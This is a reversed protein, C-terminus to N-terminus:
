RSFSPMEDIDSFVAAIAEARLLYNEFMRRKTFKMRGRSRRILDQKKLDQRCDDDLIFRVIPRLLADAGSLKEYIQLVRDADRSELDGTHVLGKFVVAGFQQPDALEEFILPFCTQETAGEVWLVADAGFLDSVSAGIEALLDRMHQLEARNMSQITSQGAAKKIVSVSASRSSAIATPSHTGIIFQHNPFSAAFIEMLGRVAGPHLSHELEDILILSLNPEFFAPLLLMLIQRVGAGSHALSPPIDDRETEPGHEWITVEGNGPSLNRV